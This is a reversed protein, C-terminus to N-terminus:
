YIKGATSYLGHTHTYACVRADWRSLLESKETAKETEEKSQECPNPHSPAPGAVPGSTWVLGTKNTPSASAVRAQGSSPTLNKM